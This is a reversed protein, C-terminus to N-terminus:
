NSLLRTMIAKKQRWITDQRPRCTKAQFKTFRANSKSVFVHSCSTTQQEFLMVPAIHTWSLLFIDHFHKLFVAQFLTFTKLFNLEMQIKLTLCNLTQIISLSMQGRTSLVSFEYVSFHVRPSRGGARPFRGILSPQLLGM